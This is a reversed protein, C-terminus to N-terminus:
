EKDPVIVCPKHEHSLQGDAGLIPGLLHLPLGITDGVVKSAITGDTLKIDPSSLPGSVHVPGVKGILDNRKARPAFVFDMTENRLNLAGGGVAQVKETELVLKQATGIGDGFTFRADFCVLPAGGDVTRTFMWEIINQGALDITRDALRGGRLSGANQGSMSALLARLDAGDAVIGLDLDLPGLAAPAADLREFLQGLDLKRLAAELEVPPRHLPHHGTARSRTLRPAIQRLFRQLYTNLHIM